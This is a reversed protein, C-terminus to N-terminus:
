VFVLLACFKSLCRIMIRSACAYCLHQRYCKFILFVEKSAANCWIWYSIAKGSRFQKRRGQYFNKELISVHQIFLRVSMCM